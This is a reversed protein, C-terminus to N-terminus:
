LHLIIKPNKPWQLKKVIKQLREYNELFDTPFLDFILLRVLNEFESSNSNKKNLIKLGQRLKIDIKESPYEIESFIFPFQKLQLKLKIEDKLKLGPLYIFHKINGCFINFM